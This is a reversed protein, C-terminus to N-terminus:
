AGSLYLMLSGTTNTLQDETCVDGLSASVRMGCCEELTVISIRRCGVGDVRMM